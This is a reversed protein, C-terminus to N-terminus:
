GCFDSITVHKAKKGHKKRKFVERSKNQESHDERKKRQNKGEDKDEQFIFKQSTSTPPQISRPKTEVSNKGKIKEEIVFEKGVVVQDNSLATVVKWGDNLYKRLDSVRVIDQKEKKRGEILERLADRVADQSYKEGYKREAIDIAHQYDVGYFNALEKLITDGRTGEQQKFKLKSFKERMEDIKTWDYYNEMTGGLVHGMLFEQDEKDMRSDEPQNILIHKFTKRLSHPTVHNWHELGARRAATKVIKVLNEKAMPKRTREGRPFNRHDSAFLFEEDFIKGSKREREKLYNRLAETTEEPTFVYYPIKNKCADPVDRKMEPYVVITLNKENNELQSRISFKQLMLDNTHVVGYKLARLTSNRLGTTFLLMIIARAKLSGAYKAMEWAEDLTPVYEERTRGGRSPKYYHPFELDRRENVQFFTKLSEKYTTATQSGSYSDLFEKIEKELWEKDTRVLDDPRKNAKRCFLSLVTCYTKKSAESRSKEIKLHYLLKDISKYESNWEEIKLFESLRM